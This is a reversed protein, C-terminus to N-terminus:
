GHRSLYCVLMGKGRVSSRKEVEVLVLVVKEEGGIDAKAVSRRTRSGCFSSGNWVSRFM